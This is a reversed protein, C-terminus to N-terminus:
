LPEDLDSGVRDLLTGWGRKVFVAALEGDM